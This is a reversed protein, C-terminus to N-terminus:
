GFQRIPCGVARELLSRFDEISGGQMHHKDYVQAHSTGFVFVFYDPTEAALVIRDYNWESRGLATESVFGDASFVSVASQTGPALRKLALRGNIQDEFLLVGTIALIAAGTLLARLDFAFRFLLFFLGLGIVIYGFIHSRRSQKQRITRRLVRAM